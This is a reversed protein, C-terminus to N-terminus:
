RLPVVFLTSSLHGIARIARITARLAKEPILEQEARPRGRGHCYPGVGTEALHHGAPAQGQPERVQGAPALGGAAVEDNGEALVQVVAADEAGVKHGQRPTEGEVVVEIEM